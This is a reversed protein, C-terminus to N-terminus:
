QTRVIPQNDQDVAQRRIVEFDLGMPGILVSPVFNIGANKFADLFASRIAGHSALGVTEPVRVILVDGYELSLKKVDIDEAKIPM